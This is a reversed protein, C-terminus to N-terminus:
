VNYGTDKLLILLYYYEKKCFQASYMHERSHVIM